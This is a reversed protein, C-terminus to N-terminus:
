ACAGGSGQPLAGSDPAGELMGALEGSPTDRSAVAPAPTKTSIHTNADMWASIDKLRYFISRGLKVFRPGTGQVRWVQLTYESMNVMGAFQEESVLGIRDRLEQVLSPSHVVQIPGPRFDPSQESM